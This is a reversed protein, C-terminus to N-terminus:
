TLNMVQTVRRGTALLHRRLVDEFLFTRLNGIHLVNYVTPGCTYLRAHGEETPVLPTPQRGMTNFLTTTVLDGEGEPPSDKALGAGAEVGPAPRRVVPGAPSRDRPLAGSGAPGGGRDGPDRGLSGPRPRPRPRSPRG